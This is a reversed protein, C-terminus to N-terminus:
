SVILPPKCLILAPIIEQLLIDKLQEKPWEFHCRLNRHHVNQETTVLKNVQFAYFARM